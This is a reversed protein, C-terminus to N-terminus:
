WLVLQVLCLLHSEPSLSEISSDAGHMLLKCGKVFPRIGNQRGRPPLTAALCLKSWIPSTVASTILLLAQASCVLEKVGPFKPTRKAEGPCM